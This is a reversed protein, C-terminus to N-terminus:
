NCSTAASPMPWSSSRRTSIAISWGCSPSCTSSKPTIRSRCPSPPTPIIALNLATKRNAMLPLAAPIHLSGRGGHPSGPDIKLCEPLVGTAYRLGLTKAALGYDRSENRPTEPVHSRASGGVASPTPAYNQSTSGELVDAFDTSAMGIVDLSSAPG